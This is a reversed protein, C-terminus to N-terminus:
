VTRGQGQAMEREQRQQMEQQQVIALHQEVQQLQTNSQEVQPAQALKESDLKVRNAFEGGPHEALAVMPRDPRGQPFSLTVGAVGDMRQQRAEVVVQAAERDLQAPDRQLGWREYETALLGRTQGFMGHRPHDPHRLDAPSLQQPDIAQAPAQAMTRASEPVHRERWQSALTEPTQNLTDALDIKEWRPKESILSNPRAGAWLVGEKDMYFRDVEKFFPRTGQAATFAAAIREHQDPTVGPIPQEQLAQLFREYGAHRPHGEHRFDRLHDPITPPQAQSPAAPLPQAPTPHTTREVNTEPVPIFQEATQTQELVRESQMAQQAAHSPAVPSGTVAQDAAPPVPAPRTVAPDPRVSVTDLTTISSTDPTAQVQAGRERVEALAARIDDSSTVAVVRAVGDQGTQLHAIPSDAGVTGQANRQLQLVGPGTLEHQERTRAQALEIAQAWEPTLETGEIRYQYQLQERWAEQPTREAYAPISMLQQRHEALSAQLMGRTSELELALNGQARANGHMWAGEANRTYMEGDSGRLRDPSLASRVAEPMQGFAEYGNRRVGIEYQAAIPAPGTAINQWMVQAAQRDLEAGREPSIPTRQTSPMRGDVLQSIELQWHGTQADRVYARDTEFPTRPPQNEASADLRFPNQPPAAEGMALAVAQNSAQYNLERAKGLSAAIRTDRANDIQDRTSDIAGERQWVRGNFTWEVGDRDTQQYIKANDLRQAFREGAREGLVGGAAGGAFAGGPGAGSGVVAGATGVVWGGVMRALTHNVASQAALPNGQSQLLQYRDYTQAGEYATAAMGLAGLGAGAGVWAGRVALRPDAQTPTLRTNVGEPTFRSVTQDHRYVLMSEESRHVVYQLPDDPVSLRQLFPRDCLGNCFDIMLNGNSRAVADRAYGGGVDSHAGVRWVNLARGDASEGMPIHRDSPFVARREHISTLQLHYDLSKPPTRDLAMPGGTAVPDFTGLAQRMQGPEVLNRAYTITGDAAVVRSSFDPIGRADVLHAFAAAQSGGRSFGLSALRIQVEPDAQKWANAQNVFRGYMEEVRDTSTYGFALDLSSALKNAQTGPGKLYDVHIQDNGLLEIQRRILHVNTPRLDPNDGDNGTGDFAAVFLKEHPNDAHVLPQMRARFRAVAQESERDLQLDREDALYHSIGDDPLGDPALPTRENGM